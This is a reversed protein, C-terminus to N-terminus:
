ISNILFGSRGLSMAKFLIGFGAKVVQIVEGSRTLNNREQDDLRDELAAIRRNGVKVLEILTDIKQSTLTDNVGQNSGLSRSDQPQISDRCSGANYSSCMIDSVNKDRALEENVLYNILTKHDRWGAFLSLGTYRGM